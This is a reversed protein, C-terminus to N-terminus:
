SSSLSLFSVRGAAMYSLGFTKQAPPSPVLGKPPHFHICVVLSPTPRDLPCRYNRTLAKKKKFYLGVPLIWLLSMLRFVRLYVYVWFWTVDVFAGALREVCAWVLLLCGFISFIYVYLVSCCFRRRGEARTRAYLVYGEWRDINDDWWM